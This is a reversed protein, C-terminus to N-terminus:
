TPAEEETLKYQERLKDAAKLDALEAKDGMYKQVQWVVFASGVIGAVAYMWTDSKDKNKGM